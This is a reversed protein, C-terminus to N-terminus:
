STRRRATQGNGRDGAPDGITRPAGGGGGSDSDGRLPPTRLRRAPGEDGAHAPLRAEGSVVTRADQCWMAQVKGVISRLLQRLILTTPHGTLPRASESSAKRM